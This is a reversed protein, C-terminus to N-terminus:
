APPVSSAPPTTRGPSGHLASPHVSGWSNIRTQKFRPPRLPARLAAATRRSGRRGGRNMQRVGFGAYSVARRTGHTDASRRALWRRTHDLLARADRVCDSGRGRGGPSRSTRDLRPVATCGCTECSAAWRYRCRVVRAAISPASSPPSASGAPSSARRAPIAGAVAVDSRREFGEAADRRRTAIGPGVLLRRVAADPERARTVVM